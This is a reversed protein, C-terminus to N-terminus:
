VLAGRPQVGMEAALEYERQLLACWSDLCRSLDLQALQRTRETAHRVTRLERLMAAALDSPSDVPALSGLQGGQLLEANGTPCDTAVVRVDCALAELLANCSGEWRSACVFLQSRAIWAFPNAKYGVFEVQTAVGLQRAQQRLRRLQPAGGSGIVLLRADVGRRLTALARILDDFGKQRTIRGMATIVVGGADFFPHQVSERMSRRVAAVDCGNPICEVQTDRVTARVEAALDRSVAAIFDAGGLKLRTPLGAPLPTFQAAARGGGHRSSNSVRLGFRVQARLGSLALAARAPVHFHNGGSLLVAPARRRLMAALSPVCGALDLTRTPLRMAAGAEVIPVHAPVRARLPGEARAVWLEAPLGAQRAATAIQISKAVTGSSRFDYNAIAISGTTASDTM